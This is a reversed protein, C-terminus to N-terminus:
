EIKKELAKLKADSYELQTKDGITPPNYLFSSLIGGAIAVTLAVMFESFHLRLFNSLPTKHNPRRGNDSSDPPAM